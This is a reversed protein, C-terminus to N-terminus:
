QSEDKKVPADKAPSDKSTEDKHAAPLEDRLEISM